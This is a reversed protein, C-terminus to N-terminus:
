ALRTSTHAGPMPGSPQEARQRARYAAVHQRNGCNGTDCYIRSRNRSLDVLVADCGPAACNRLRSTEGLRVLDALAFAVPALVRHELAADMSSVHLHWGHAPDHDTLWPRAHSEALLDNIMSALERDDAADWAGRLRPGLRRAAHVDAPTAARHPIVEHIDLFRDLAAPDTLSDANVLDVAITLGVVTDHAFLM